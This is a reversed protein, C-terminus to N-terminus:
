ENGIFAVALSIVCAAVAVFHFPEIQEMPQMCVNRSRSIGARYCSINTQYPKQSCSSSYISNSKFYIRLTYLMVHENECKWVNFRFSTIYLRWADLEFTYKPKMEMREASFQNLKWKSTPFLFHVTECTNRKHKTSTSIEGSYHILACIKTQNNLFSVIQSLSSSPLFVTIWLSGLLSVGVAVSM